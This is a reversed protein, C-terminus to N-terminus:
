FPIDDPSTVHELTCTTRYLLERAQFRREVPLDDTVDLFVQGAKDRAGYIRNQDERFILAEFVVGKYDDIPIRGSIRREYPFSYVEANIKASRKNEFVAHELSLIPVASNTEGIGM